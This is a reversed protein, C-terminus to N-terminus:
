CLVIATFINYLIHVYLSSVQEVYACMAGYRLNYGADRLLDGFLLSFVICLLCFCRHTKEMCLAM